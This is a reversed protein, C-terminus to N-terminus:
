CVVGRLRNVIQQITDLPLDHAEGYLAGDNTLVDACYTARHTDKCLRLLYHEANKVPDGAWDPDKGSRISTYRRLVDSVCPDLRKLLDENKKKSQVMSRRSIDIQTEIKDLHDDNLLVGLHSNLMELYEKRVLQSNTSSTCAVLKGKETYSAEWPTHRDACFTFRIDASTTAIRHITKSM